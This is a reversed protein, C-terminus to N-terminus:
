LAADLEILGYPAGGGPADRAVATYVGGNSLTVSVPGIIPTKSGALTITLDYNGEVYSVFGTDTAFPMAAYTPAASAIGAGSATLYVDVLQASPSGQVFRLRAQTAYGRFDDRTIFPFIQALPGLAYLSYNTGAMLNVSQSSYM